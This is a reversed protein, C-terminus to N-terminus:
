VNFTQSLPFGALSKGDLQVDLTNKGSAVAYEITYTGDKNDTINTSLNDSKANHCVAKLRAGDGGEQKQKGAKTVVKVVMSCRAVEVAKIDTLLKNTLPSLYLFARVKSAISPSHAERSIVAELAFM